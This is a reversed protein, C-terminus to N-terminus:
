ARSGFEDVSSVYFLVICELVARRVDFLLQGYRGGLQIVVEASDEHRKAAIGLSSPLEGTVAFCEPICDAFTRRSEAHVVRKVVPCTPEGPQLDIGVPRRFM